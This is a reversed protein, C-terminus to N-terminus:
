AVLLVKGHPHGHEAVDQAKRAEELRFTKAIPITFEGRAVDDALEYLRSADPQAMFAHVKINRGRASEPEGLVSGLVGGDRLYPLL